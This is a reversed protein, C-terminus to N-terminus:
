EEEYGEEGGEYSEEGGEEAGGMLAAKAAELDQTGKVFVYAVASAEDAGIKMTLTNAKEDFILSCALTDGQYGEVGNSRQKLTYTASTTNGSMDPNFGNTTIEKDTITYNTYLLQEAIGREAAVTALDKGGITSLTWDGKVKSMDVGCATLSFMMIGVLVVALVKKTVNKM